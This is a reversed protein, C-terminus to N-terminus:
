TFAYPYGSPSNRPDLSYIRVLNRSMHSNILVCLYAVNDVAYEQHRLRADAMNVFAIQNDITGKWFLLKVKGTVTGRSPGTVTKEQWVIVQSHLTSSVCFLSLLCLLSRM